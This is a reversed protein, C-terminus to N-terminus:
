LNRICAVSEFLGDTTHRHWGWVDQGKDYTLGLLVGDDMVLWLCSFPLRQFAWELIERERFLHGALLTLDGGSFGDAELSYSFDRVIRNGREVFLISNGIIIAPQDGSGYRSELKVNISTPTIGESESGAAIWESGSTGIMLNNRYSVLWKIENIQQDSITFEYSRLASQIIQTLAKM